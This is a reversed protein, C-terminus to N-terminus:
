LKWNSPRTRRTARRCRPSAWVTSSSTSPTSTRRKDLAKDRAYGVASGPADHSVHYRRADAVQLQRAAGHGDDHASERGFSGHRGRRDDPVGHEGARRSQEAGTSMGSVVMTYKMRATQEAVTKKYAVQVADIPEPPAKQTEGAKANEQGASSDEEDEDEGGCAVLMGTALVFLVAFVLLKRLM